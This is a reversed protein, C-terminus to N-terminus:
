SAIKELKKELSRLRKLMDPLQKQAALLRAQENLPGAPYGFIKSGPPVNEKLGSQALIQSGAGITLQDAIGVQGWFMCFDGVEVSGSLGVQSAMGCSKGVHCNHAVQVLNDIKSGAGIRTEGFTARDVCTNAGIEVDDEIVVTGVQPLKRYQGDVFKYGYGDAGLVVGSHLIVRAGVQVRELVRASPHLLCGAGITANRGVFCQAGIETDDSIRAGAEVVALPGISVRAGILASPDVVASPHIGAPAPEEPWFLDVLAFVSKWVDPVTLCERGEVSFGSPTLFAAARSQLAQSLYKEGTIFAIEFPGAEKLDSIGSVVIGASEGTPVQGGLKAAIEALTMSVSNKRRM